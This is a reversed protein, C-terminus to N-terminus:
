QIISYEQYIEKQSITSLRNEKIFALISKYLDLYGKFKHNSFFNNHWLVSLVCNSRNKDLFGLIREEAKKVPLRQYQFFTRDMIHLPVEIFNFPRREEVNYPNFPLGYNNRFGIEEAFGLSADLKLGASEIDHFAGPLNFKLYHYRNGFPTQGFKEFEDAFSEPSISKHIGNEFGNQKVAKFSRQISESSFTYDANRERKNLVGKNVIWYFVSKCDYECELKMIMDINLWDPRGMAVNLLLKLFQDIRGKKLVNFGDELIAGNVLDIDHTLFFRSPRDSVSLKALGTIRDFCQQVLNDTVKGSRSQFSSSYKYRGLEDLDNGSYEQFCNLHYFATSLYDIRQDPHRLFGDRDPASQLLKQLTFEPNIDIVFSSGHGVTVGRSVGTLFSVDAGVNRAWVRFLYELEPRCELNESFSMEVM